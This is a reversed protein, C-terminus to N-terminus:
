TLWHRGPPPFSPKALSSLTVPDFYVLNLYFLWNYLTYIFAPVAFWVGIRWESAFAAIQGVVDATGRLHLLRAAM